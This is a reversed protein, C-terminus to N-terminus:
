LSSLVIFGFWNSPGFGGQHERWKWCALDLRQWALNYFQYVGEMYCLCRFGFFSQQPDLVLCDKKRFVEYIFISGFVIEVLLMGFARLNYHLVLGVLIKSVGVEM